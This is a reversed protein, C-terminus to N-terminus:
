VCVCVCGCVFLCLCVRVPGTVTTIGQLTNALVDRSTAVGGGGRLRPEWASLAPQADHAHTHTHTHPPTHTPTHTHTRLLSFFLPAHSLSHSPFLHLPLLKKEFVHQSTPRLLDPLCIALKQEQHSPLQQEIQGQGLSRM